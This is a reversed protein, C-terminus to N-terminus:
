EGPLKVSATARRNCVAKVPEARGPYHRLPLLILRYQSVHRKHRGLLKPHKERWGVPTPAATAPAGAPACALAGLRRRSRDPPGGQFHVALRCLAPALEPHWSLERRKVEKGQEKKAAM